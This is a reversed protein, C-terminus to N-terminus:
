NSGNVLCEFAEHQLAEMDEQSIAESDPPDYTFCVQEQIIHLDNLIEQIHREIDIFSKNIYPTM